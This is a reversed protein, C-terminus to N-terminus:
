FQRNNNSNMRRERVVEFIRRYAAQGAEVQRRAAELLQPRLQEASRFLRDISFMLKKHLHEEELNVVECGAGFQDALGLFKDIYYASRPLGIVPIGQSLAFVGGHYSGTIVIRCNSVQKIAKLPTDINHGGDSTNDYGSLLQQIVKRDSEAKITSIPVPILPASYKKAALHLTMSVIKVLKDDVESYPAVRLNVGIGTGLEVARVGYALEIADDGTIVVRSRPVNIAGLVPLGARQERLAILDVLPLVTKMVAKLQSDQVDNLGQGLMVTATGNRCAMELIHLLSIAHSEYGNIFHGGGSAIVLDAKYIKDLLVNVGVIYTLHARVRTWFKNQAIWLGQDSAKRDLGLLFSSCHSSILRDLYSIVTLKRLWKGIGVSSIPYANPFYRTLGDPDHTVMDFVANPFLNDLRAMAVQLMAIDGLNGVVHFTNAVLIRM